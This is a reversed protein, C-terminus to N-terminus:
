FSRWIWILDKKMSRQCFGSPRFDRWFHKMYYVIGFSLFTEWPTQNSRMLFANFSSKSIGVWCFFDRARQCAEVGMISQRWYRSLRSSSRFSSLRDRVASTQPVTVRRHPNTLATPIVASVRLLGFDHTLSLVAAHLRSVEQLWQYRTYRRWVTSQNVTLLSLSKFCKCGRLENGHRMTYCGKFTSVAFQFWVYFFIIGFKILHHLKLNVGVTRWLYQYAIMFHRYASM